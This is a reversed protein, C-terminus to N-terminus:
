CPNPWRCVGTATILTTDRPPRSTCNTRRNEGSGDLNMTEREGRARFSSNVRMQCTTVKRTVNETVNRYVTRTGTEQRTEYTCVNVTVEQQQPVTECVTKKVMTTKTETRCVPVTVQKQSPVMECVTRKRTETVAKLVTQKITVEETSVLYNVCTARVTIPSPCPANCGGCGGCGSTCAPTVVVTNCQTVPQIRNALVKRDVCEPVFTTHLYEVEKTTPTYETVTRTENVTVTECTTVPVMVEKQKQVYVTQMQKVQKTVPVSVTYSYSEQVPVCRTVPVTVTQEVMQARYCTVQREVHQVAAGACPACSDCAAACWASGRRHGADSSGLALTLWVGMAVISMAVRRM